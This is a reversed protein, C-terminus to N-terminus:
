RDFRRASSGQVRTKAAISIATRCTVREIVEEVPRAESFSPVV